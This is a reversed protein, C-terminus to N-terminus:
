VDDLGLDAALARLSGEEPGSGVVLLRREHRPRRAWARLLVDFGKQPVLRGIALVTTDRAAGREASAFSRVDAGNPIVRAGAIPHGVFAEVDHLTRASCATFGDAERAATRMLDPLPGPRGFSQAPDM